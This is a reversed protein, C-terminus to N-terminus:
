YMGGFIYFGIVTVSDGLGLENGEVKVDFQTFDKNHTIETITYDESDVMEQLSEDLSQAMADLMTKHQKKTMKYTVSGDENLKGSIYTEGAERDISEQTTGEPVFDAPFTISVTLIGNETEVKGLVELEDWAEDDVDEEAKEATATETTNGESSDPKKEGSSSCGILSFCIMLALFVRLLKNM